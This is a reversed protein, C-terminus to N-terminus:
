GFGSAGPGLMDKIASYQRKLLKVRSEIHPNAKLTCGLFKNHIYKELAKTYGPKFSSADAKFGDEVLQLLGQM